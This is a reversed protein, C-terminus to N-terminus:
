ACFSQPDYVVLSELPELFVFEHLVKRRMALLRMVFSFLTHELILKFILCM